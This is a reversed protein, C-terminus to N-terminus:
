PIERPAGVALPVVASACRDLQLHAQREGSMPAITPPTIPAQAIMRWQEHRGHDAESEVRPQATPERSAALGACAATATAVSSALRSNAPNTSMTIWVGYPPRAPPYGAIAIPTQGDNTPISNPTRSTATPNGATAARQWPRRERPDPQVM